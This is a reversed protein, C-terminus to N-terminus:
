HRFVWGLRYGRVQLLEMTYTDVPQAVRLRAVHIVSPLSSICAFAAKFRGCFIAALFFYLVSPLVAYVPPYVSTCPPHFAYVALALRPQAYLEFAIGNELDTRLTGFVHAGGRSAAWFAQPSM